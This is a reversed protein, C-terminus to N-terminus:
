SSESIAEHYVRETAEIMRELDFRTRATASAATSLAVRRRADDLLTEIAAAMAAADGVNVLMGTAGDEIIERAGETTTAVVPTGCAMAEVLALGFAESRSASVFVDLASLLRALEASRGLLRVRTRLGLEAVLAELRARNEGRRSHDDGVILFQVADGKTRAVLSAARVFDEQGKVTSLEGVTGVLFPSDSSLRRRYADRDYGRLSDDLRAFDIANHVVRIKAEPFINRARLAHAVAGSVAIVRATNSLALRHARSMPFLVHRTIVLRARPTMRAALAAPVYDRALHAHIIDVQLERVLRALQLASVIDLANRLPLTFFNQTPLAALESRLPSDQRLAAYVEHGRRALGCALDALHREGGGLARASSVHLIIM